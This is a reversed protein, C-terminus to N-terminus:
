FLASKLKTAVERSFQEAGEANLHQSNNFFEQNRSVPSESWDWFPVKFAAAMARFRDMLEGRNKELAQMEYYEPSFVLVIQIGQSQCIRIIQELAQVGAQDMRYSVGNLNADRFRRFDETWHGQRPNFGLFYDERNEYGLCGLLGVAWTFRMDEVTYGYLPINKWKWVARDVGLFFNYIEPEEMYPMYYGPDYIEGARTTEFSFLDLNQILVKPRQNHKLYVKLVALQFDIQSANMGINYATHGTVSQIIRPDYHCLARSSGSIVIDTNIRGQIIDNMAGFKSTRIQRLGHNVLAHLAFALAM